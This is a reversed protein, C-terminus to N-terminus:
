PELFNDRVQESGFADIMMRVEVGRERARLLAARMWTAPGDERMLYSELRIIQAAGDICREMEIYAEDITSLWRARHEGLQREVFVQPVAPPPSDPLSATM